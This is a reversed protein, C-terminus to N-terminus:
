SPALKLWLIVQDGAPPTSGERYILWSILEKAPLGVPSWIANVKFDQGLYAEGLQLGENVSAPTILANTPSAKVLASVSVLNQFNRLQWVLAPHQIDMLTVDLLDRDQARVLSERTLTEQLQVLETSAPLGALPQYALNMLPGYNLRWVNSLLFVLGVVLGTLALGRLAMGANGTTFWFFAVIVILLLLAAVAQLWALQCFTDETGCPRTLWGTLGIYGFVVIVLGAALIIGENGWSGEEQLGAWLEALALAAMFALPTLVLIVSGNPRGAIVLDLLMTAIFWGALVHQLLNRSLLAYALGVLGAIVLLPEYITLLFVANFGADPHPQNGFRRLWEMFLNTTVGFGSLNFTLVTALLFLLALFFIIVPRLYLGFSIEEAAPDDEGEYEVLPVAQAPSSALHRRGQRWAAKFDVWKLLVLLSFIVIITYAMPGAVLLLALGGALLYLWSRQGDVLWNFFGSVIMLAGVVVAIEGNVTRSLYLAIPSIALLASTFLVVPRGLQRWFTLPLLVLALGLLASALRVTFESDQFLFFTLTNLSVLLPSYLAAEPASGQYLRWAGLGQQAEVDSLPYAGLRWLRLTLAIGMILVFLLLEVTLWPFPAPEEPPQVLPQEVTEPDTKPRAPASVKSKVRTTL